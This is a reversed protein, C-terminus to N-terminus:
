TLKNNLGIFGSCEDYSRVHLYENNSEDEIPVEEKIVDYESPDMLTISNQQDM